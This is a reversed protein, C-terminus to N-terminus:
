KNREKFLLCTALMRASAEDLTEIQTVTLRAQGILQEVESKPFLKSDPPLYDARHRETQLNLVAVGILRIDQHDKLPSQSFANRLPGHDLARYIRLLDSESGGKPLLTATCLKALSHFVAYYASSVARRRYAASGAKLRVLDEASTLFREVM